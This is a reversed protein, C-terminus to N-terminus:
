NSSGFHDLKLQTGLARGKMSWVSVVCNSKLAWGLSDMLELRMKQSFRLCSQTDVRARPPLVEDAGLGCLVEGAVYAERSAGQTAEM